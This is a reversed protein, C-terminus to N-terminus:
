QRCLRVHHTIEALVQDQNDNLFFHGGPFTRLYRRPSSTLRLWARLREPTVFVDETGGFVSIPCSVRRAVSEKGYQALLALDARLIPLVVRRLGPDDLLRAPTGGMKALTTLLEEDPLDHIEVADLFGPPRVGSVILLFPMPLENTESERAVEYCINGGLSHGFLVFQETTPRTALFDTFEKALQSISDALPEHRRTGRGPLEVPVFEVGDSRPSRSWSLYTSASGGAHPFCYVRVRAPADGTTPDDNHWPTWGAVM